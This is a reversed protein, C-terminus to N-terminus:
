GAYEKLILSANQGGFGFSNSLVARVEHERATNPVYDLDCDPDPEELNITPPVVNERIAMVSVAAELAGAAAILHGVMSKISSMPVKKAHDGFITKTALTEMRDNLVTSTGHASIYDIDEPSMKADDLARAIAQAAGRGEAHPATVGSADFSSGYGVIEALIEAGRAKAHEESEITFMAAGEGLVFGDRDRDFPRSLKEAARDGQSLAGLLSYAVISLPDIRSDAGGTLMLDAQGREVVRYAEGIAQTSASCATVITNNPGQANHIISVHAAVMNPLHKLLWLPYLRRQGEVGFRSVDFKGDDDLSHAIADGLEEVDTPVLGSGVTVGFREPDYDAGLLGGHEMAMHSAGVAFRINNGMIKLQKPSPLYPRANYKPVEGAASVSFSGCDFAQIEAIGSRGEKCASWFSDLDEGNPAVVGMGTIVVRRSM